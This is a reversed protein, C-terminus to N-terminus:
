RVGEMEAAVSNIAQAFERLFVPNTPLQFGLIQVGDPLGAYQLIRPTRGSGEIFLATAEYRRSGDKEYNTVTYTTGAPPEIIWGTKIKKIM